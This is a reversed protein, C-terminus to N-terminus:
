PWGRIIADSMKCIRTTQNVDHTRVIDAGKAIGIAITAMTGELRQDPPLNLVRGIISKRSSTLLIPRHLVRLEELRRMVELNQEQKLGWVDNIICAGADLAHQAVALKYSDISLPLPMEKTLRELVPIVRYLEEDISIPTSGPRTSEGGVDIIDAGEAAMHRARAVAADINNGLGDGAFSDPSANIIGMIYTREGWHFTTRGCHTDGLEEHKGNNHHAVYKIIASFVM